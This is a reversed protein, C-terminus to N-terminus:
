STFRLSDLMERVEAEGAAFDPGCIVAGVDIQRVSASPGRIWATLFRQTRGTTCNVYSSSTRRTSDVRVKIQAPRGDLTANLKGPPPKADNSAFWWASIADRGLRHPPPLPTGSGFEGSSPECRPPVQATTLLLLPYVSTGLWCWDVREWGAPYGFEFGYGSFSATTLGSDGASSGTLAITTGAAAGGLVVVLAAGAVLLGRRSRPIPFRGPVAGIIALAVV